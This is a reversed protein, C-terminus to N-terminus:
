RKRALADLAYGVGSQLNTRTVLGSFDLGLGVITQALEPRLGVLVAQAGLLTAANAAQLLAKAVQTDILPVGTVDIIVYTANHQEIASLLSSLLLEARESDIAGILPMVLVGELVPVVPSSLERISASLQDRANITEHLDTLATQLDATRQTVREELTRNHAEIEARTARLDNAMRQFEQVLLGLEGGRRIQVEETLAGRGLATAATTLIQIPRVTYRAIGWAVLAMAAAIPLAILLAMRRLNALGRAIDETPLEMALAGVARTGDNVPAVLTILGASREQAIQGTAIAQHALAEDGGGDKMQMDSAIEEDLFLGIASYLTVRRISGPSPVPAMIERAAVIDSDRAPHALQRATAQLVEINRDVIANEIVTQAQTLLLLIVAFLSILTTAIVLTTLQTTLRLRGLWMPTNGQTTYHYAM